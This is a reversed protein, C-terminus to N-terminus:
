PEGENLMAVERQDNLGEVLDHAFAEQDPDHTRWAEGHKPRAVLMPVYLVPTPRGDPDFGM